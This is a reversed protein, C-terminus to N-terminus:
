DRAAASISTRVASVPRQLTKIALKELYLVYLRYVGEYYTGTLNTLRLLDGVDNPLEGALGIVSKYSTPVSIDIM